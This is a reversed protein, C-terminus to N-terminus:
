GKFVGRSGKSLASKGLQEVKIRLYGSGQKWSQEGPVRHKQTFGANLRWGRLLPHPRMTAATYGLFGLARGSKSAKGKKTMRSSFHWGRKVWMNELTMWPEGAPMLVLFDGPAMLIGKKSTASSISKQTGDVILRWTWWGSEGGAKHINVMLANHVVTLANPDLYYGSEFRITIKKAKKNHLSATINGPSLGAVGDVLYGLPPNGLATQTAVEDRVIQEVLQSISLNVFNTMDVVLRQLGKKADLTSTKAVVPIETAM